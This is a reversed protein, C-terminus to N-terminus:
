LFRRVMVRLSGLMVRLSSMVVVFSGLMVLGAIMFLSSVVRMKRVTVLRVGTFVRLM